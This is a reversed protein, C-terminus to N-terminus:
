GHEGMEELTALGRSAAERVEARRDALARLADAVHRDLAPQDQVLMVLSACAQSSVEPEPDDLLGVLTDLTAADRLTGLEATAWFRTGARDSRCSDVCARALFAWDEEVAAELSHRMGRMMEGPDGLCMCNLVDVVGERLRRLAVVDGLAVLVYARDWTAAADWDVSSEPPLPELARLESLIEADSRGERERVMRAITEHPKEIM